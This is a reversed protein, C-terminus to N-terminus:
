RNIKLKGSLDLSIKGEAVMKDVIEVVDMDRVQLKAVLEKITLENDKLLSVISDAISQPNRRHARERLCIDCVGCPKAETDGFYGEIIRSRCEEDNQAYQLMSKTRELAIDYRRSYSDPSIYVDATPLRESDFFIMPSRSAPIYRIVRMRWLMQLLAHVRDPALGATSALLLEDIYRFSSFVGNYTRLIARLLADMDNGGANLKYLADRSCMFMLRAPNDQEDVLTLLGNLELIKLASTVRGYSLHMVHCFDYINFLFSAGQGDGI